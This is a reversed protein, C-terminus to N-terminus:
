EEVTKICSKVITEFLDSRKMKLKKAYNHFKKQIDPSVNRIYLIDKFTSKHKKPKIEVEMVKIVRKM